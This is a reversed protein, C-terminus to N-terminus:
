KAATARAAARVSSAVEAAPKAYRAGSQKFCQRSFLIEHQIMQMGFEEVLWEIQKMVRERSRGHIMCFLNFPWNPLRRPRRYCLTIFDVGALRRAVEDVHDDPVNWVVMANARYGLERHRVVIGMRRVIGNAVMGNLRELVESESMGIEAAIAAYPRSVLPLGGQLSTVLNKEREILEM